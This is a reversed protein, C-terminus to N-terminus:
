KHSSECHKRVAVYNEFARFCFPCTPQNSHVKVVHENFYKENQSIFDCQSCKHIKVHKTEVKHLEDKPKEQPSIRRGGLKKNLVLNKLSGYGTSETSAEGGDCQEMEDNTYKSIDIDVLEGTSLKNEIIKNFLITNKKIKKLKEDSKSKFDVKDKEVQYKGIENNLNINEEKVKKYEKREVNMERKLKDNQVKLSSVENVVNAHDNELNTLANELLAVKAKLFSASEEDLNLSSMPEQLNSVDASNKKNPPSVNPSNSLSVNRERKYGDKVIEPSIDVEM